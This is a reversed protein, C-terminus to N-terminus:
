LSREARGSASRRGLWGEVLSWSAVTALPWTLDVPESMGYRVYLILANCGLLLTIRGLSRPLLALLGAPRQGGAAALRKAILPHFGLLYIVSGLLFGYPAIFGWSRPLLAGFAFGAGASVVAFFISEVRM